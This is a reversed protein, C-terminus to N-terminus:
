GLVRREIRVAPRVVEVVEVDDVRAEERRRARHVRGERRHRVGHPDAVVEDFAEAGGDVRRLLLGGISTVAHLDQRLRRARDAVPEDGPEEAGRRHGDELVISALSRWRAADVAGARAVALASPIRM